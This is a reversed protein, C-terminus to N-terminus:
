GISKRGINCASSTCIHQFYVVCVYTENIKTDKERKAAQKATAPHCNWHDRIFRFDYLSLSHKCEDDNIWTHVSSTCLSNWWIFVFRFFIATYFSCLWCIASFHLAGWIKDIQPKNSSHMNFWCFISTLRPTSQQHRRRHLSPSLKVDLLFHM